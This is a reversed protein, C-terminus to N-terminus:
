HQIAGIFSEILRGADAEPSTTVVFDIQLPNYVGKPTEVFFRFAIKDGVVRKAQWFRVDNTSRFTTIEAEPFFTRYAKEYSTIFDIFGNQKNGNKPNSLM